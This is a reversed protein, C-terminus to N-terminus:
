QFIQTNKRNRQAKAILPLYYLFEPFRGSKERILIVVSKM